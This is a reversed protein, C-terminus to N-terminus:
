SQRGKLLACLFAKRDGVGESDGVDGVGVIADVTLSLLITEEGLLGVVCVFAIVVLADFVAVVVM